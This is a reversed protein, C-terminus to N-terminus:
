EACAHWPAKPLCNSNSVSEGGTQDLMSEGNGNYGKKEDGFDFNGPFFGIQHESRCNRPNAYLETSAGTHCVIPKPKRRPATPLVIEVEEGRVDGEPYDYVDEEEEDEGRQPGGRGNSFPRRSSPVRKEEKESTAGPRRM